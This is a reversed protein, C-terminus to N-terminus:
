NEGSVDNIKMTKGLGRERERERECSKLVKVDTKYKTFLPAVELM